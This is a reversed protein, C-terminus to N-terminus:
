GIVVEGNAKVRNLLADDPLGFHFSVVEPRVGEIVACYQEDFPLRLTAGPADIVGFEAYYPALLARWASDDAAEPMKHCLFNINIPGDFRQRVESVQARVIEPMMLGCPLSGLAGGQGAAVCLDVGAVNAMPAQIIPHETGVLDLFRRNPWGVM